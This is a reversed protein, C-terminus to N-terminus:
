AKTDTPAQEPESCEVYLNDKDYSYSVRAYANSQGSIAAVFPRGKSVVLGITDWWDGEVTVATWAGNVYRRIPYAQNATNGSDLWVAYTDSPATSSIIWGTDFLSNLKARASAGSDGNNVKQSAM